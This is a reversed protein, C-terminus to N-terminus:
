RFFRPLRPFEAWRPDPRAFLVLLETGAEGVQFEAGPMSQRFAGTVLARRPVPGPACDRFVVRVRPPTPMSAVFRALVELSRRAREPSVRDLILGVPTQPGDDLRLWAGPEWDLARARTRVDDLWAPIGLKIKGTTIREAPTRPRDEAVRRRPGPLLTSLLLVGGAIGVPIWLSLGLRGEWEVVLLATPSVRDQISFWMLLSAAFLLLLAAQRRM